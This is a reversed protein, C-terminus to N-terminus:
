FLPFVFLIFLDYSLFNVAVYIHFSGLVLIFKYGIQPHHAEFVIRWGWNNFLHIVSDFPLCYRKESTGGAKNEMQRGTKQSNAM